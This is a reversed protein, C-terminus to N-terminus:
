SSRTRFLHGLLVDCTPTQLKFDMFTALMLGDSVVCYTLLVEPLGGFWCEGKLLLGKLTLVRTEMSPM